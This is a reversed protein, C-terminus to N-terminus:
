IGLTTNDYNNWKCCLVGFIFQVCDMQVFAQLVLQFVFVCDTNYIYMRWCRVVGLRAFLVFLLQYLCLQFLLVYSIVVVFLGLLVAGSSVCEYIIELM